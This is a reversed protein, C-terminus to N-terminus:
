TAIQWARCLQMGRTIKEISKEKIGHKAKEREM